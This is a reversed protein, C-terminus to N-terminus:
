PTQIAAPFASDGCPDSFPLDRAMGPGTHSRSNGCDFLGM